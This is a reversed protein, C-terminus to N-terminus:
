RFDSCTRVQDFGHERGFRTRENGALLRRLAAAQAADPDHTLRELPQWYRLKYFSMAGRM